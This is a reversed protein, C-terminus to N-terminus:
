PLRIAGAISGHNARQLLVAGPLDSGPQFGIDLVGTGDWEGLNTWSSVINVYTVETGANEGREIQVTKSPLYQILQILLPEAPGTANRSVVPGGQPAENGAVLPASGERAAAVLHLGGDAEARIQLAFADPLSRHLTIFEALQMPHTGKVFSAGGVIMQPTYIMRKGRAQAYAKQRHTFAPNALSDKWGLYDWYDVHMALPLVDTRSALQAMLADAPPCSSCGQSTFLEVVVPSTTQVPANTSWVDDPVSAGATQADAAGASWLPLAALLGAMLLAKRRGIM